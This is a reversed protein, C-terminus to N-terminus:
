VIEMSNILTEVDHNSLVLEIIQRSVIERSFLQSVDVDVIHRKNKHDVEDVLFNDGNDKQDFVSLKFL